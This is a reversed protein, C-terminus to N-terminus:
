GEGHWPVRRSSKMSRGTPLGSGSRDDWCLSDNAYLTQCRAQPASWRELFESLEPTAPPCNPYLSRIECLRRFERWDGFQLCWTPALRPLKQLGATGALEGSSDLSSHLRPLLIKRDKGGSHRRHHRPHPRLRHRGHLRSGQLGALSGAHRSRGRRHLNRRLAACPGARRAPPLLSDKGPPGPPPHRLVDAGMEAVTGQCFTFGNFPSPVAQFFREIEGTSTFLRAIGRLVRVPPDKPHLALKVNAKEAAEVLPKAFYLLREWMQQYSIAGLEEFPPLDKVLDYDFARYLAGGRGPVSKYGVEPGWKFDPSWRWQFVPVGAQGLAGISRQIREIDQDRAPRALMSNMQWAFPVTVCAIQLGFQKCREQVAQIDELSWWGKKDRDVQEAGQLDVWQVGLQAMWRLTADNLGTINEAV